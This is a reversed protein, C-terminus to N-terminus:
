TIKVWASRGDNVIVWSGTGDDERSNQMGQPVYDYFGQLLGDYPEIEGLLFVMKLSNTPDTDIERLRELNPVRMFLEVKLEVIDNAGTPPGPYRLGPLRAISNM